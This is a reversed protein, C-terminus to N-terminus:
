PLNIHSRPSAAELPWETQFSLGHASSRGSASGSHAQVEGRILRLAAPGTSKESLDTAASEFRVVIRGLEAAPIQAGLANLTLRARGEGAPAGAATTLKVRLAEGGTTHHLASVLLHVLARELRVRDCTIHVPLDPLDLALDATGTAMRASLVAREVMSRFDVSTLEPSPAEHEEGAADRLETALERLGLGHRRTAAAHRQLRPDDQQEAVDVLTTVSGLLLEVDQGLRRGLGRLAEFRRAALRHEIDDVVLRALDQLLVAQTDTWLRPQRDAVCLSGLVLGSSTLLPMGAYSLMSGDHVVSNNQTLPDTRTDNVLLPEGTVVQFQCISDKIALWRRPQGPTDLEVAGPAVQEDKGVLTVYASPADLLAGALRAFSDLTSDAEADLLGSSDLVALRAPDAIGALLASPHAAERAPM